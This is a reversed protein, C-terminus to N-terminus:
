LISVILDIHLAFDEGFSEFVAVLFLGLEFVGVCLLEVGEFFLSLLCDVVGVVGEVLM